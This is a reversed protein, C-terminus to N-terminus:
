TGVSFSKSGFASGGVIHGRFETSLVFVFTGWNVDKSTTDHKEHHKSGLLREVFGVVDPMLAQNCIRDFGHLFTSDFNRLISNVEYSFHNGDIGGLSVSDLLNGSMLPACSSASVLSLNFGVEFSKISFM